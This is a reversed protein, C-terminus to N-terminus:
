LLSKSPQWCFTRQLKKASYAGNLNLNLPFIEKYRRRSICMFFNYLLLYARGKAFIALVSNRPKKGLARLCCTINNCICLCMVYTNRRIFLERNILIDTPIFSLKLELGIHASILWPLCWILSNSNLKLEVFRLWM